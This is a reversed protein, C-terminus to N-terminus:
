CARGLTCSRIEHVDRVEKLTKGLAFLAPPREPMDERPRRNSANRDYRKDRGGSLGQTARCPGAEHKRRGNCGSM